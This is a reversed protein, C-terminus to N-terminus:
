REVPVSTKAPKARAREGKPLARATPVALPPALSAMRPSKAVVHEALVRPVGMLRVQVGEGGVTPNKISGSSSPFEGSVIAVDRGLKVPGDRLLRRAVVRGAFEMCPKDVDDRGLTWLLDVREVPTGDEGFTARLGEQVVELSAIHFRWANDAYRGGLGSAKVRWADLFDSQVIVEAGQVQVHLHPSSTLGSSPKQPLKKRAPTKTPM